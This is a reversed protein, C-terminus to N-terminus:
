DEAQRKWWSKWRCDQAHIQCHRKRFQREALSVPRSKQDSTHADIRLQLISPPIAHERVVSKEWYHVEDCLGEWEYRVVVNAWLPQGLRISHTVKRSKHLDEETTDGDDEASDTDLSGSDMPGCHQGEAMQKACESKSTGGQNPDGSEQPWFWGGTGTGGPVGGEEGTTWETIPLNPNKGFMLVVGSRYPRRGEEVYLQCPLIRQDKNRYNDHIAKWRNMNHM